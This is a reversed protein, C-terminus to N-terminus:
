PARSTCVDLLTSELMVLNPPKALHHEFGAEKSREIDEPAAYGSLAVLHVASLAPDRRVRRAVEFGDIGPLGIDCLVVEPHTARAKEIGELGTAVTEVHHGSLELAERLSEAADANDEIVLVHLTRKGPAPEHASPLDGASAPAQDIPLRVIFEAGKGVGESRVAVNGGHLQILGKVLALGLGLGGKSRDLTADAQVFPEFLRSLLTPAIGAGSDRVHITGMEGERDVWLEVKGGAPTFKAANGLLNGIVQSLRTADGQTYLPTAFSRTELQVDLATFISRHDEATRRVLDSLEVRGRQLRVKGRSIRTVDLLDDILRSLHAVQREIVEHARKAQQGGQPARELVYLSNQIPAMPNRLEHSLIALFENKRRDAEEVRVKAECLETIDQIAAIAGNISGEEDRIPVGSVMITGRTGDFREIDVIVGKVTRGHLLAQAAPWEEPVLQKGTDPWFAKYESYDAFSELRGAGAWIRKAEDNALSARGGAEVVFLGAPVIEVITQLRAREAELRTQGRRL